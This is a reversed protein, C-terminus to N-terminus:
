NTRHGGGEGIQRQKARIEGIIENNRRAFSPVDLGDISIAHDKPGPRDITEINEKVGVVRTQRAHLNVACHILWEGNRAASKRHIQGAQCNERRSRIPDLDL